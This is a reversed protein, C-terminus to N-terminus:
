FLNAFFDYIRERLSNRSGADTIQGQQFEFHSPPQRKQLNDLSEDFKVRKKQPPSSINFDAFDEKLSTPLCWNDTTVNETDTAKTSNNSKNSGNSARLPFLVDRFNGSYEASSYVQLLDERQVARPITNDVNQTRFYSKSDSYRSAFGYTPDHDATIGNSSQNNNVNQPISHTSNQTTKKLISRTTSRMKDNSIFKYLKSLRNEPTVRLEQDNNQVNENYRLPLPM